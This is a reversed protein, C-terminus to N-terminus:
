GIVSFSCSFSRREFWKSYYPNDSKKDAVFCHGNVATSRQM